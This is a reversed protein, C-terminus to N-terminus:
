MDMCLVSLLKLDMGEDLKVGLGFVVREAIDWGLSFYRPYMCNHDGPWLTWHKMGSTVRGNWTVVGYQPILKHM